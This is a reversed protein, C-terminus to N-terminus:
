GEISKQTNEILSYLRKKASEMDGSEIDAAIEKFLMLSLRLYSKFQKDTM